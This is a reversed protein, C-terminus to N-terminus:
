GSFLTFERLPSGPIYGSDGLTSNLNKNVPSNDKKEGLVQPLHPLPLSSAPLRHHQHHEVQSLTFHNYM